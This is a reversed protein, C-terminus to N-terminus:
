LLGSGSIIHENSAICIITAVGKPALTRTGTLSSGAFRLTVGSGSTINISSTTSNFVTVADGASLGSNSNVAFGTNNSLFKGADSSSIERTIPSSNVNVFTFM